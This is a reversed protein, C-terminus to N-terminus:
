KSDGFKKHSKKYFGIGDKGLLHPSLRLMSQLNKDSTQKEEM